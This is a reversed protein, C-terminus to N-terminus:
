CSYSRTWYSISIEIFVWRLLSQVRSKLNEGWTKFELYVGSEYMEWELYLFNASLQQGFIKYEIQLMPVNEILNEKEM